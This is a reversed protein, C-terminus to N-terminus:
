TNLSLSLPRALPFPFWASSSPPFESLHRHRAVTFSAHEPAHGTHSEGVPGRLGQVQKINNRKYSARRRITCRIDIRSRHYNPIRAGSVGGHRVTDCAPRARRFVSVLARIIPHHRVRIIILFRSYIHLHAVHKM